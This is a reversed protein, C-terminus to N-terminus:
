IRSDDRGVLAAFLAAGARPWWGASVVVLVIFVVVFLEGSTLGLM